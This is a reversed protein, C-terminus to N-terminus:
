DTAELQKQLKKLFKRLEGIDESTWAIDKHIKLSVVGDSVAFNPHPKVTLTAALTSTFTQREIM